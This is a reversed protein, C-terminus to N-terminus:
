VSAQVHSRLYALVAPDIWGAAAAREELNEVRLWDSLADQWGADWGDPLERPEGVFPLDAERSDEPWMPAFFDSPVGAVFGASTLRARLEQAIPEDIAVLDGASPRDFHLRWMALLRGLEGVPDASDDVRLNIRQDSGGGWGGHERVVILVASQRGRRDGGALDAEYLCKVLLEPFPEGAAQHTEYLADVVQAGALINGQVAVNPATRGGAWAFCSRGTHTASDGQADVLGMQHLQHGEEAAALRPMVESASMGSAILRLAEDRYPIMSFASCSVAGVGARAMPVGVGVCPFKSQVAVALDGTEPDRAVISYTM